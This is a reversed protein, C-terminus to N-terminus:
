ASATTAPMTLVWGADRPRSSAKALLVAARTRGSYPGRPLPCTQAADALTPLVYPVPDEPRRAYGAPIPQNGRAMTRHRAEKPPRFTARMFGSKPMDSLTQETTTKMAIAASMLAVSPVTGAPCTTKKRDSKAIGIM